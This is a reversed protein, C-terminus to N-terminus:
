VKKKVPKKKTPKKTPKAMQNGREQDIVVM